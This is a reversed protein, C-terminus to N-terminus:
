MKVSDIHVAGDMLKGTITVKHGLHDKVSDANHIPVVKGDETVFVPASGGKVCGKVCAMSKESADAHKAGCKADSVTGKWTDAFAAVSCLALCLAFKKM